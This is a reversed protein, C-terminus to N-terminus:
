LLVIVAAGFVAAAAGLVAQAKPLRRDKIAQMPIVLVPALSGLVAAVAGDLKAFAYLLASSALIYGIVGPLITRFVLWGTLATNPRLSSAPHLAVLSVIIAAGTLHIASVAFPNTGSELVPKVALYSLGQCSVGLLGACSFLVYQAPNSSFPTETREQALIALAVGIMCVTGGFLDVWTAIEGLWFYAMIAVIPARLSFIIESRRPGGMRLCTTFSLLGVLMASTSVLYIPWHQISVTSWLSLASCLVFLIAGCAFVQIRIFAFSGLAKAPREALVTGCAWGASAAIASLSSFVLM